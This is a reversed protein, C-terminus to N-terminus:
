FFLLNHYYYEIDLWSIVLEVCARIMYLYLNLVFSPSSSIISKQSVAPWDFNSLRWSDYKKSAWPATRTNSVVLFIVYLFRALQYLLNLFEQGETGKMATPFLISM